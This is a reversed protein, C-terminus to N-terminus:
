ARWSFLLLRLKKDVLAVLVAPLVDHAAILLRVRSVHNSILNPWICSKGLRAREISPWCCLLAVSDVLIAGHRSRWRRGRRDDLLVRKLRRLKTCEGAIRAVLVVATRRRARRGEVRVGCHFKQTRMLNHGHIAFKSYGLVM